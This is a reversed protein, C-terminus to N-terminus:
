EAKKVYKAYLFGDEVYAEINEGTVFVEYSVGGLKGKEAKPKATVETIKIAKGNKPIKASGEQVATREFSKESIAEYQIQVGNLKLRLDRFVVNGNVYVKLSGGGNSFYEFNLGLTDGKSIPFSMEEKLDKGDYIYLKATTDSNITITKSGSEEIFSLYETGTDTFTETAKALITYNFEVPPSFLAFTTAGPLLKYFAFALGLIILILLLYKLNGSPKIFNLDSKRRIIIEVGSESM